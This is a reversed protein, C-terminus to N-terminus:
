LISLLTVKNLVIGILFDLYYVDTIDRSVRRDDVGSRLFPVMWRLVSGGLTATISLIGLSVDVVLLVLVSLFFLIPGEFYPCAIWSVRVMTPYVISSAKGVLTLNVFTTLGVTAVIWSLWPPPRLLEVM